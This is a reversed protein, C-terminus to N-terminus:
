EYDYFSHQLSDKKAYTGVPPEIVDQSTSTHNVSHTNNKKDKHTCYYHAALSSLIAGVPIIGLLLLEM